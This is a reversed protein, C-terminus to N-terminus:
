GSQWQRRPSPSTTMKVTDGTSEKLLHLKWTSNNEKDNHEYWEKEINYILTVILARGKWPDPNTEVTVFRRYLIIVGTVHVSARTQKNNIEVELNVFDLNVFYRPSHHRCKSYIKTSFPASNDVLSGAPVKNIVHMSAWIQKKGRWKQNCQKKETCFAFWEIGKDTKHMLRTQFVESWLHKNSWDQLVM